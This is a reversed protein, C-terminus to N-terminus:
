FVMGANIRPFACIKVLPDAFIYRPLNRLIKASFVMDDLFKAPTKRSLRSLDYVM